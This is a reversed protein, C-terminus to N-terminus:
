SSTPEAAANTGAIFGHVHGKGLGHKQFGGAAEGGAYLGPIVQGRTDIVQHKGNVRLGGYSDHWIVMIALAHFPPRAIRHMPADAEREFDPDKNADVYGNWKAVTSALHKLPVRQFEHGKEIKAALDEITDAKFYYGNDAVYPFRLEWKAREVADEDFIAWMPGSYYHPAQSGENVALAADCGHDYTYMERIWESRCNRWDTPRHEIGAHPAVGGGPYQGGGGRRPLRVENFFRKGVQNVAIFEEFGATGVNVGASGRFGFTPHGPMMDTYADRTGLRTSLHFTAASGLNQQMGALNAGVKLGAILASADQGNPGQLALGSSPFAPERMAPYFM